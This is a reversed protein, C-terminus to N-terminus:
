MPSCLSMIYAMTRLTYVPCVYVTDPIVAKPLRARPRKVPVSVKDDLWTLGLDVDLAIAWDEVSDQLPAYPVSELANTRAKILALFGVIVLLLASLIISALM